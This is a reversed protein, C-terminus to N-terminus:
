GLSDCLHLYMEALLALEENLYNEILQVNDSEITEDNFIEMFKYAAITDSPCDRNAEWLPNWAKVLHHIAYSDQINPHVYFGNSFISQLTNEIPHDFFIPKDESVIRDFRNQFKTLSEIDCDAVNIDMRRGISGNPKKRLTVVGYAFLRKQYPADGEFQPLASRYYLPKIIHTRRRNEFIGTEKIAEKDIFAKGQQWSAIQNKIKRDIEPLELLESPTKSLIRIEEKEKLNFMPLNYIGPKPERSWCHGIFDCDYPSYCHLGIEKEPESSLTTTHISQEIEQGIQEYHEIVQDTVDVKVFLQNLDLEGELRYDPNLHVLYFRKIDLGSKKIVYNQLAADKYYTDSLSLSSKVEYAEWGDDAKVLVDLLILTKDAQFGAEYIVNTDGEQILQATKEVAKRYQSPSKPTCDEGGPFLEQALHGIQHGRQFKAAREPPMPDRLFYKKKYLFLQKQCQMAKIFTSKSLINKEM